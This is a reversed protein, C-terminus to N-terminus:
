NQDALNNKGALVDAKFIGMMKESEEFIPSHASKEFTYYGKVPAQLKELYAKSLTHNVTLDYAGSFFYVPIGIKTVRDTLDTALLEDALSTKNIFTLKSKWLNIKEGPTYARCLMVGLVVDKEISKMHRMTGIGLEHMAQDRVLSRFFPIAAADDELLPYKNLEKVMRTNGTAEYHEMMYHYAIKDSTKQNTIQAIGIYAHYLEPNAAAVQIAFFTGGSHAALYIKEQEFLSRLYQTVELTDSALQEMTLSDPSLDPSYSLGGGREEWYCVTFAEELGTPYQEVLFYESFSPGGHVFLLVPNHINTGRIFMGQRVGGITVFVKESISGELVEGNGDLFPQPRGPSYAAIVGTLILFVVLIVSLMMIVARGMRRAFENARSGNGPKSESFIKM